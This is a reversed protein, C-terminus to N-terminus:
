KVTGMMEMQKGQMTILWIEEQRRFSLSMNSWCALMEGRCIQRCKPLTLFAFKEVASGVIFGFVRKDTDNEQGMIKLFDKQNKKGASNM